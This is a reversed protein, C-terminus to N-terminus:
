VVVSDRTFLPYKPLLRILIIIDSTIMIACSEATGKGKNIKGAYLMFVGRVAGLRFSDSFFGEIIEASENVITERGNKSTHASDVSFIM